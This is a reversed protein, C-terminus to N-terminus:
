KLGAKILNGKRSLGIKDERALWGLALNLDVPALALNKKLQGSTMEGNIELEKWIRGADVGIQSNMKEEM